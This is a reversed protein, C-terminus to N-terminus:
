PRAAWARLTAASGSGCAGVTSGIERVFSLRGNADGVYANRSAQDYVPATLAFGSHVVIPWGTTVKTPTGIFVGSFKYLSGSDDGVYLDDFGYNYYPASNSDPGSGLPLSLLCSTAGARCAAYTSANTTSTTPQAPSGVTGEGAQPKLIYLFSGGTSSGVFAVQSGDLSLVVSTVVACTACNDGPRDDQIGLLFQFGDEL